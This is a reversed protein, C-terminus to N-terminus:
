SKTLTAKAKGKIKQMPKSNHKQLFTSIEDESGLVKILNFYTDWAKENEVCVIGMVYIFKSLLAKVIRVQSM